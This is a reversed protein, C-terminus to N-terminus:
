KLRKALCDYLAAATKIGNRYCDLNIKENPAHIHDDPLGFGVM